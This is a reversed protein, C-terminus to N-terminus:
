QSNVIFDALIYVPVVNFLLSDLRDWFGGHGLLLPSSDKIDVARKITSEFLDGMAGWFGLFLGLVALQWLSAQLFAACVGSVLVSALVGGLLGSVTKHPSVKPCLKPGKLRAGVYYAATDAAMTALLLYLLWQGGGSTKKLMFFFSLLFSLYLHGLALRSLLNVLVPGSERDLGWMSYGAGIALALVLGISQGSPGYFSAGGAVALWGALALALLGTREAGFLHRSFEWWALGGVLLMLLFFYLFEEALVALVVPPLLVVAVLWRSRHSDMLIKLKEHM